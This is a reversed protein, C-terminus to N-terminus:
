SYLLEAFDHEHPAATYGPDAKVRVVHYGDAIGLVKSWADGVTEWPLWDVDSDQRIGWGELSPPNVIRASNM